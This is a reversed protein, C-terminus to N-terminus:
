EYLVRQGAASMVGHRRLYVRMIRSLRDCFDRIIALKHRAFANPVLHAVNLVGVVEEDLYIPMSLYSRIPAQGHRSGRHINPLHVLRRRRAVWATLGTGNEFHIRDIFNAGEGFEAVCKIAGGHPDLVFISAGCFDVADHLLELAESFGQASVREFEHTSSDRRSTIRSM